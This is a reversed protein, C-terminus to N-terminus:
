ERPSFPSTSANREQHLLEVRQPTATSPKINQTADDKLITHVKVLFMSQNLKNPWEAQYVLEISYSPPRVIDLHKSSALKDLNNAM